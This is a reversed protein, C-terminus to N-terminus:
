LLEKRDLIVTECTHIPSLLAVQSVIGECLLNKTIERQMLENKQGIHATTVVEVGSFFSEKVRLLEENSGIEDFAIMEPFMTRLAISVGMARDEIFVVDATLGLDNSYGGTKYGSIEGRSDIVVVRKCKGNQLSAQIRLFDRLVTTKGSGPPGAILLGKGKYKECLTKACGKVQRAIRINISTVDSLFGEKSFKGCIGARGGNKLTIYGNKIEEEHAYVSNESIQLYTEEIDRPTIYVLDSTPFFSIEGTNKVFVTDGMVTLCLPLSVRLRIEEVGNKIKEPIKSLVKFLNHSVAFLVEDYNKTYDTKIM